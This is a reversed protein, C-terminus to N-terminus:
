TDNNIKLTLSVRFAPKDHEPTKPPMVFQMLVKQYKIM